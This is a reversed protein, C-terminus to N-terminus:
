FQILEALTQNSSFLHVIKAYDMRTPGLIGLTAVVVGDLIIPVSILSSNVLRSDDLEQGISITLTQQLLARDLLDSMQNVDDLIDLLKEICGKTSYDSLALCRRTNKIFINHALGVSQDGVLIVQRVQKIFRMENSSFRQELEEDDVKRFMNKQLWMILSSTDIDSIDFEFTINIKSVIGVRHFLILLGHSSSMSVYQVSVFDNLERQNLKLITIYPINKSLRDHFHEFLFRFKDYYTEYDVHGDLQMANPLNLYNVYARYGKDTPVRGSSTHLKEVYGQHDLVSFVQRISASSLQMGIRDKVMFSSIPQYSDIFHDVLCTLVEKHRENM